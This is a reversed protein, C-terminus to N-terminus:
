IRSADMRRKPPVVRLHGLRKACGGALNAAPLSAGLFHGQGVEDSEGRRNTQGCGFRQSASGAEALQLCGSAAM